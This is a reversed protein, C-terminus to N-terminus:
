DKSQKKYATSSLYYDLFNSSSTKFKESFLWGYRNNMEEICEQYKIDKLFLLYLEALIIESFQAFEHSKKKHKWNRKIQFKEIFKILSLQFLIKNFEITVNVVLFQPIKIILAFNKLLLNTLFKFFRAKVKKNFSDLDWKREKRLKTDSTSSNCNVMELQLSFINYTEIQEENTFEKAGEKPALFKPCPNLLEETDM